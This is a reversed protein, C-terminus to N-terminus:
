KKGQVSEWKEMQDDSRLEWKRANKAHNAQRAKEVTEFSRRRISRCQEWGVVNGLFFGCMAWNFSRMPNKHVLFTVTGLVGMAQFGTLMAERFCPMMVFQSMTFDSLKVQSLAQAYTAEKRASPESDEFKPPLDELYQQPRNEVAETVTSVKSPSGSFWGM